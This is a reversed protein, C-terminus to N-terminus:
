PTNSLRKYRGNVAGAIAKFQEATDKSGKEKPKGGGAIVMKESHAEYAIMIFNVPTTM